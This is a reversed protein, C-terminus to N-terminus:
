FRMLLAFPRMTALQYVAAATVIAGAGYVLRSAVVEGGMPSPPINKKKGKNLHQRYRSAMVALAVSRLDKQEEESDTYFIVGENNFFFVDKGQIKAPRPWWDDLTRWGHQGYAMQYAFIQARGKSIGSFSLPKVEGFYRNVRDFIDPLLYKEWEYYARADCDIRMNGPNDARYEDCVYHHVENGFDSSYPALGSPDSHATPMGHVYGYKHLSLPDSSNGLYSDQSVFGGRVPDIYRARLYYFGLNPDLQEGTYRYNNESSGSIWNTGVNTQAEGFASYAYRDTVAGTADSLGRVSGLGDYHYFQSIAAKTQSILDDGHIYSVALTAAPLNASTPGSATWEEIVQAYAQNTDVLYDTRTRQNNETVIQSRRIGNPDYGYSMVKGGITSGTMRNEVDWRYEATITSGQKTTLLNGNDDYSHTTTTGFIESTLRDNADYVYTRTGLETKTLRNGVADYTWSRVPTSIGTGTVTERTLRKQKDYVWATNMTVTQNATTPHPRINVMETRLGSADVTYSLGLLLAANAAASAKHTISKLRNRRDYEYSTVTGNPLTMGKRSGVETYRYETTQPAQNNISAIVKELRNLEDYDFTIVQKDSAARTKNGNADYAYNIERQLADTAKILRGREDYAFSYIQGADDIQTVQGQDDYDFMRTRNDPFSMSRLRGDSDYRYEIHDGNFTTKRDLEGNTNYRMTEIQGLPLTRTLNRGNQDYSWRTIRGLADTQSIKQGQENYGYRTVATSTGFQGNVPAPNSGDTANPLAVATLRSVGDYQYRVTRGEEDTEAVKRGVRDYETRTRPNSADNNKERL